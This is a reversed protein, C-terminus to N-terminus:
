EKRWDLLQKEPSRPIAGPDAFGSRGTTAIPRVSVHQRGRFGYTLVSSSHIPGEHRSWRAIAAPYSTQRISHLRRNLTSPAGVRVSYTCATVDCSINSARNRCLGVSWPKMGTKGRGDSRVDVEQCM